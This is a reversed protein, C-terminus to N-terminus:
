ASLAVLSSRISMKVERDTLAPAFGTECVGAATPMVGWVSSVPPQPAELELAYPPDHSFGVVADNVWIMAASTM